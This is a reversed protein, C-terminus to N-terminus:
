TKFIDILEKYSPFPIAGEAILEEKTFSGIFGLTDIGAAKAAQVGLLSDEIVVCEDSEIGLRNMALQFLDPAPKGQKVEQASNINEFYRLLGTKELSFRIKRLSGSSAIATNINSRKLEQIFEECFPFTKLHQNALKIYRQEKKIAIKLIEEESITLGNENLYYLIATRNSTGLVPSFNEGTQINLEEALIQQLAGCSLPESDVLVGDVDFIVTNKTSFDM